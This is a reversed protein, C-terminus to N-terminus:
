ARLPSIVCKSGVRHTTMFRRTPGQFGTDDELGIDTRPDEAADPVRSFGVALVRESAVAREFEHRALLQLM